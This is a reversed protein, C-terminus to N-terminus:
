KWFPDAGFVSTAPAAVTYAAATDVSLDDGGGILNPITVTGNIGLPAAFQVPINIDVGLGCQYCQPRINTRDEEWGVHGAINRADWLHTTQAINQVYKLRQSEAMQNVTLLTGVHFAVPGFAVSCSNPVAGNHCGRIGSSFVDAVGAGIAFTDIVVGNRYVVCNANRDFNAVYHHWDVVMLVQAGNIYGGPPTERELGVQIYPGLGGVEHLFWFGGGGDPGRHFIWQSTQPTVGLAFPMAWLEVAFDQIGIAVAVATDLLACGALFVNPIFDEPGSGLGDPPSSCVLNPVLGDEDYGTSM